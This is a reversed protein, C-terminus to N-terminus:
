RKDSAINEKFSIPVSQHGDDTRNDAKGEEARKGEKKRLARRDIKIKAIAIAITAMVALTVSMRIITKRARLKGADLPQILKGVVRM